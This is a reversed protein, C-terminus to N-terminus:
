SHDMIKSFHWLELCISTNKFNKSDGESVMSGIQFEFSGIQIVEMENMISLKAVSIVM